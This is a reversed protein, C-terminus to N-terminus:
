NNVGRDDNYKAVCEAVRDYHQDLTEAFWGQDMVNGQITMPMTININGKAAALEGSNVRKAMETVDQNLSKGIVREGKELNWTGSKWVYDIGDHAQGVFQQSMIMKVNAMGMAVTAAAMVAGTVGGWDLANNAAKYTSMIAAAADMKQKMKFMKESNKAANEMLFDSSKVMLEEQQAVNGKANEVDEQSMGPFPSQGKGKLQAITNGITKDPDMDNYFRDLAAKDYDELVQKKKEQLAKYQEYEYSNVDNIYEKHKEAFDKLQEDLEEEIADREDKYVNTKAGEGFQYQRQIEKVRNAFDKNFQEMNKLRSAQQNNNLQVLDKARDVEINKLQESLHKELDTTSKGAAKREKIQGDYFDKATKKIDDYLSNLTKVDALEQKKLESMQNVAHDAQFEKVKLRVEAMKEDFAKLQATAAEAKAKNADAESNNFAQESISKGGKPTPTTDAPLNKPRNKEWEARAAADLKNAKDTYHSGDRKSNYDANLAVRTAEYKEKEDRLMNLENKLNLYEEDSQLSLTQSVWGDGNKVAQANKRASLAEIQAERENIRKTLEEYHQESAKDDNSMGKAYDDDYQKSITGGLAGRASNTMSQLANMTNNLGDVFSAVSKITSMLFNFIKDAWTDVYHEFGEKFGGKSEFADTLQKTWKDCIMSFMPAFRAVISTLFDNGVQHLYGFKSILTQIADTNMATATAAGTKRLMEFEANTLKLTSILKLGADGMEDAVRVQDALSLQQYAERLAYLKKIPDNEGVWKKAGGMKDFLVGMTDAMKEGGEVADGAKISLEKLADAFDETEQGAFKALYALQNMQGSTLNFQKALKEQELRSAVVAGTYVSLGAGAVALSRAVTGSAAAIHPGMFKAANSVGTFGAQLKSLYSSSSQVMGQVLAKMKDAAASLQATNAGININLSAATFGNGRAM